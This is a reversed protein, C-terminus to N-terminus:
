IVYEYLDFDCLGTDEYYLKVRQIFKFGTSLYLKEAPLNGKLVDLRIAKYKKEEALRVANKVMFKGVGKQTHDKIVGLAHLVAYEGKEANVQWHAQEYGDNTHTNFIMAAALEEGYKALYMEGKEVSSRIYEDEPYIGKQWKPHYAADQMKDILEYYFARVQEYENKEAQRFILEM